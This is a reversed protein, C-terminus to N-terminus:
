KSKLDKLQSNAPKLKDELTNGTRFEGTYNDGKNSSGEIDVDDNNPNSAPIATPETVSNGYTDLVFQPIVEQTQQSRCNTTRKKKLDTSKFGNGSLYM